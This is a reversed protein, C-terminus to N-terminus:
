CILYSLVNILKSVTPLVTINATVAIWRINPLTQLYYVKSLTMICTIDLYSQVPAMNNFLVNKSAICIYCFDLLKLVYIKILLCILYCMMHCTILQKRHM